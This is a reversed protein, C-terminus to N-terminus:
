TSYSFSAHSTHRVGPIFFGSAAMKKCAQYNRDFFHRSYFVDDFLRAQLTGIGAVLNTGKGTFIEALVKSLYIIQQKLM